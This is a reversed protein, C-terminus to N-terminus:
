DPKTVMEVVLDFLKEDDLSAAYRTGEVSVSLYRGTHLISVKEAKYEVSVYRGASPKETTRELRTVATFQDAYRALEAPDTLRRKLEAPANPERGVRKGTLAAEKAAKIHRRVDDGTIVPEAPNM